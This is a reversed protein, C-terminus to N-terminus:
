GGKESPERGASATRPSDGTKAPLISRDVKKASHFDLRHSKTFTEPDSIAQRSKRDLSIRRNNLKLCYLRRVEKESAAALTVGQQNGRLQSNQTAPFIKEQIRPRTREGDSDNRPSIVPKERLVPSAATKRATEMQLMAHKFHAGYSVSRGSGPDPNM